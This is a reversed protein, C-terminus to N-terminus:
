PGQRFPQFRVMDAPYRSASRANRSHIPLLYSDPAPYAIQGSTSPHPRLHKSFILAHPLSEDYQKIKEAELNPTNDMTAAHADPTKHAKFEHFASPHGNPVAKDATTAVHTIGHAAVDPTEEANM